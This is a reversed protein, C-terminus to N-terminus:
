NAHEDRGMLRNWVRDDLFDSVMRGATQGAEGSKEAGHVLGVGVGIPGCSFGAIAGGTGGASEGGIQGTSEVAGHTGARAFKEERTLDPDISDERAQAYTNNVVSAATLIGGLLAPRGSSPGGRGCPGDLLLLRGLLRLETRSILGKAWNGCVHHGADWLRRIIRQARRRSSM